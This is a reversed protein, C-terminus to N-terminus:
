QWRDEDSRVRKMMQDALALREEGGLAHQGVLSKAVDVLRVIETDILPELDRRQRKEKGIELARSRQIFTDAIEGGEVQHARMKVCQELNDRRLFARDYLRDAVGHHCGEHPGFM